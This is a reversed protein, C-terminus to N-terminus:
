GTLGALQQELWSSQNNMQQMATELATFQAWYREQIKTLREEWIDIQDDLNDIEKGLASNDYVATSSGARGQLDSINQNVKAYLKDAVGDVDGKGTFLEMVGDADAALAERLKDEDIYLKGNDLYNSSTKIGISSLSTYSASADLGAVRDTAMSRMSNYIGSLLTDGKLLGSHAKAEWLTIDAEKMDEKQEDTLPAYDRDREEKLKNGMLDMVNNYAEVFAKIKDVTGDINNSINISATGEGQLSFNIGNLSFQNSSFTLGSIGQFTIEADQGTGLNVPNGASARDGSYLKLVDQLFGKSDDLVDIRVNSGTTDSSLFVRDIGEDYNANIGIDASNIADMVDYITTRAADFTFTKSGKTGELSFSITGSVGFQSAISSKDEASGLSGSSAATVGAALNTVEISYKGDAVSAGATATVINSNSSVATNGMFSSQMTIDFAATRLALMKTNIDRYDEQKWQLIQKQQYKVDVKTREAKMLDAVMSETDLGSALGTLRITM